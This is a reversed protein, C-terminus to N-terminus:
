SSFRRASSDPRADPVRLLLVLAISLTIALSFVALRYAGTGLGSFVTLIVGALAPGTVASVRGALAYFGFFKGVKEPPSLAILM